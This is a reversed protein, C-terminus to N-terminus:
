SLLSRALYLCKRGPGRMTTRVSPKPDQRSCGSPQVINLGRAERSLCTSKMCRPRRPDRKDDDTM